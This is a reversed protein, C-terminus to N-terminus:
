ATKAQLRYMYHHTATAAPQSVVAIKKPGYLDSCEAKYPMEEGYTTYNYVLLHKM